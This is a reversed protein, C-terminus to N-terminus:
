FPEGKKECPWMLLAVGIMIENFDVNRKEPHERLYKNIVAIFQGVLVNEPMCPNDLSLFALATNAQGMCIGMEFYGQSSSPLKGTTAAREVAACGAMRGNGTNSDAANATSGLLGLALATLILKRKM